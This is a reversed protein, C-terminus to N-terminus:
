SYSSLVVVRTCCFGLLSSLAIVCCMLKRDNIKCLYDNLYWDFAATIWNTHCHHFACAWWQQPDCLANRWCRNVKCVQDTMHTIHFPFPQNEGRRGEWLTMKGTFSHSPISFCVSRKIFFLEHRANIVSLSLIAPREEHECVPRLSFPSFVWHDVKSICM